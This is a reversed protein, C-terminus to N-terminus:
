ELSRDKEWDWRSRESSCLLRAFGVAFLREWESRLRVAPPGIRVDEAAEARRKRRRRRQDGERNRRTGGVSTRGEAAGAASQREYEAPSYFRAQNPQNERNKILPHTRAVLDWIKANTEHM